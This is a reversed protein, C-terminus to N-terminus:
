TLFNPSKLNNPFNDFSLLHPPDQVKDRTFSIPSLSAVTSDAVVLVVISLQSSCGGIYVDAVAAVSPSTSNETKILILIKRYSSSLEATFCWCEM